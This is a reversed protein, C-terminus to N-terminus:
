GCKYVQLASFVKESKMLAMWGRWVSIMGPPADNNRGLYGGLKAILLISEKVTLPDKPLPKGINIQIFLLKWEQETLIETCLNEPHIRGTRSLWFLRWAVVSMMAIFNKLREATRLQCKEVSCGSKLVKHFLEINWRYTYWRIVDKLQKEQTIDLNTLLMWEVPKEGKPPHIEKILISNLSLVKLNNDLTKNSRNRPPHLRFSGVAIKLHAKRLQHNSGLVEIVSRGVVPQKEMYPWLREAVYDRRNKKNINRDHSARIIMSDELDLVDRIFEYLDSERDGIHIVKTKESFPLFSVQYLSHIWKYTEKEKIPLLRHQYQDKKTRHPRQHLRAWIEQHLIGLPEGETSVALSTHMQLGKVQKNNKGRVGIFGLGETKERKTYNLCTTDQIDLIIKEKACREITKQIHPSLIKDASVEESDLLRYAAKINKWTGQARCISYESQQMMQSIVNVFRKDRREDGLDLQTFEDTAWIAASCEM